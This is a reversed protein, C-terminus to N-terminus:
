GRGKNRISGSGGHIRGHIRRGRGRVVQPTCSCRIIMVVVIRLKEIVCVPGDRLTDSEGFVASANGRMKRREQVGHQGPGVAISVSMNHIPHVVSSGKGDVIASAKDFNDHGLEKALRLYSSIIFFLSFPKIRKSKKKNWPESM